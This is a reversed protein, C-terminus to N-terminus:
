APKVAYARLAEGLWMPTIRCILNMLRLRTSRWARLVPNRLLLGNPDAVEIHLVGLGATELARRLTAASFHQLHLQAHLPETYSPHRYYDVNPVEVVVLGGSRVVRAMECLEPVPQPLHEVVHWATIVDFSDGPLGLEAVQHRYTHVQCGVKQRVFTACPESVETGEAEWGAAVAVQLFDGMGCGVDLLRGKAALAEVSALRAQWLRARGEPDHAFWAKKPGTTLVDPRDYTARIADPSPQPNVYVMTCRACRCIPYGDNVGIAIPEDAGCLPCVVPTAARVAEM